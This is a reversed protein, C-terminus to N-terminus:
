LTRYIADPIPFTRNTLVAGIVNVQASRLQRAARRATERRTATADVVLVAADVVAGLLAGDSDAAVPGSDLLVYDFRTLCDRLHIQMQEATIRTEVEDGGHARPLFWINRAIGVLCGAFSERGFLVDSLGRTATVGLAATLSSSHLNCDIVCIASPSQVTLEVATGVCVMGSGADADIPTFLASRIPAEGPRPQLIRQALRTLDGPRTLGADSTVDAQQCARGAPAAAALPAPTEPADDLDWPPAVSLWDTHEGDRAVPRVPHAAARGSKLLAETIRSM